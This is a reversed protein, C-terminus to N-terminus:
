PAPPPGADDPRGADDPPGPADSQGAGDPRRTAGRTSARLLARLGLVAEIARDGDNAQVALLQVTEDDHLDLVAWPAGDDLRVGRVVAWPLDKDGALNRVRVGDLDADVRARTFLLVAGAVLVGVGFMALQDGLRFTVDTPGGGTTGLAYAVLAFLVLVLVAVAWCVQTLRRPRAHVPAPTAGPGLPRNM